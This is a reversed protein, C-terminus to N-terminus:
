HVANLAAQLFAVKRGPPAAVWVVKNGRQYYYHLQGQGVVSFVMIAGVQQSQLDKFYPNGARIRQTMADVLQSAQAASDTEGVWITAGNEYHGIWGGALQVDKGHLRRLEEMAEQGTMASELRLGAIAQPIAPSGLGAQQASAWLGRAVAVILVLGMVVQIGIIVARRRARGVSPRHAQVQAVESM